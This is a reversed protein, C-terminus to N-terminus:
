HPRPSARRWTRMVRKVKWALWKEIEVLLFVSVGAGLVLLWDEGGLGATGFLSHSLPLYTFVLQASILLGVAIWAQRNGFLGRLSLSRTTIFRCNFLYFLEGAVLVNIAITRAQDLSSGNDVAVNFLLLSLTAILVSVFAVRWLLYGSVLPESPDRPPRQMVGPEAPEFALALALIVSSVMNVWLIQVPTIPLDRLALVVGVIITLAEAGNIPLLFLITKRLNDFTTRGELVADKISVFNDDALVMEAVNKTAEAGKIGMAIGVDSRKLAPADNIGDGTMATVEGSAQLATVLRLKHEPSTRAFVQHELAVAPLSAEDLADLEEGTIVKVGDGIGVEAAIRRATLAHDGTIMKVKIGAQQCEHVARAAEDRPPDMIGILGLLAFGDQVDAWELQDQPHRLTKSAIALLRHGQDASLDIQQHWYAKDLPQPHGNQHQSACRALVTEPAGKLYITQAGQPTRNLTAMFRRESEFPIADLRPYDAFLAGQPLGLKMGLMVVAGETPDGELRWQGAADGPTFEADSCLVGALALRSLEAQENAPVEQGDRTVHGEPAYGSSSVTFSGTALILQRASMENRTLTGTKDSCIATVSGLTEVAPLRRIIANRQAMRQVGLALTVTIIAPLGEPIAAVALSIVAISLEALSYSRALYGFLFVAASLVVIALSLQRGFVSMNRLLPTTLKEVQSVMVGIRGIETHVGTAIVVGSGQGSTVLTGSYAMCSRDALTTSAAMAASSKSAPESEGTLIAEEIRLNKASLLRLDAPVRDGAELLVIDGPVVREAGLRKRRGERLVTAELSLLKRIGELAREAKGEQIFGILANICVVALIVGSDLWEQLLATLIAGALLIYILVNNFQRLFRRLPHEKPEEPLRNPGHKALRQEAESQSLGQRHARFVELVKEPTESHWAQTKGASTAPRDGRNTPMRLM